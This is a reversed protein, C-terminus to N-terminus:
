TPLLSIPDQFLQKDCFCTNELISCRYQVDTNIPISISEYLYFSSASAMRAARNHALMSTQKHKNANITLSVSEDISIENNSIKKQFIRSHALQRNRNGICSASLSLFDLRLQRQEVPERLVSCHRM